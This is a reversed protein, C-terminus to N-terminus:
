IFSGKSTKFNCKDCDYCKKQKHVNKIHMKYESKCFKIGCEHCAIKTVKHDNIDHAILLDRTSFCKKCKECGFTGNENLEM